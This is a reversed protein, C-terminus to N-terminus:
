ITEVWRINKVCCNGVQWMAEQGRSRGLPFATTSWLYDSLLHQSYSLSRESLFRGGCLVFTKQRNPPLSVSINMFYNFWDRWLIYKRELNLTCFISNIFPTRKQFLNKQIDITICKLNFAKDHYFTFPRESSVVKM